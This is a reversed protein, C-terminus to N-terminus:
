IGVKAKWINGSHFPQAQTDKTPHVQQPALEVHPCTCKKKLLQPYKSFTANSDKTERIRQLQTEAEILEDETLEECLTCTCSKRPSPNVVPEKQLLQPYTSFSANPDQTDRIHQLRTEADILEQPTLEEYATCSYPSEYEPVPTNPQSKAIARQAAQSVKQELPTGKPNSNAQASLPLAWCSVLLIALTWKTHM